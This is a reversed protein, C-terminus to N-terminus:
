PSPRHIAMGLLLATRGGRTCAILIGLMEPWGRAENQKMSGKTDEEDPVRLYEKGFLRIIVKYFICVYKLTTDEGIRLYENTYYAPIGYAIGRVAASIEKYSSFALLGVANRRRTFFKCNEECAKVIRVFFDRHM